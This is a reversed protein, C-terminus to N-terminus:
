SDAQTRMRKILDRERTPLMDAFGVVGGTSLVIRAANVLNVGEGCDLRWVTKLSVGSAGAVDRLSLQRTKRYRHLRVQRWRLVLSM